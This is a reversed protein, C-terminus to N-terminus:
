QRSNRWERMFEHLEARLQGVQEATHEVENKLVAIDKSNQLPLGMYGVAVGALFIAVGIIVKQFARGNVLM